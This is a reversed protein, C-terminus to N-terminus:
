PTEYVISFQLNRNSADNLDDGKIGVNSTVNVFQVNSNDSGEAVYIHRYTGGNRNIGFGYIRYPNLFQSSVLKPLTMILANSGSGATGGSTNVFTGYLYVTKGVVKYDCTSSANTFSPATGGSVTFTPTYKTLPVSAFDNASITGAVELITSPTSVGIGVKGNSSVTMVKNAELTGGTYFNIGKDSALALNGGLNLVEADNALGVNYVQPNNYGSNNRGTWFFNSVNTGNDGTFAIGSQAGLAGSKNQMNIQIFDNKSAVIDLLTNSANPTGMLVVNASQWKGNAIPTVYVKETILGAFSCGLFVALVLLKKM